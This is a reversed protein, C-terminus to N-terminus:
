GDFGFKAVEDAYDLATVCTPGPCRNNDNYTGSCHHTGGSRTTVRPWLYLRSRRFDNPDQGRQSSQRQNTLSFIPISAKTRACGSVITSDAPPFMNRCLYPATRLRFCNKIYIKGTWPGSRVPDELIVPIRHTARTIFSEVDMQWDDHNIRMHSCRRLIDQYPPWSALTRYTTAGFHRTLPDSASWRRTLIIVSFQLSLFLLGHSTRHAIRCRQTTVLVM